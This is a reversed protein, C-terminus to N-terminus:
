SMFFWITILSVFANKWSNSHLGNLSSQQQRQLNELIEFLLKHKALFSLLLRREREKQITAEKSSNFNLIKPKTSISFPRAPQIVMSRCSAGSGNNVRWSSKVWLIPVKSWINTFGFHTQFPYMWKSFQLCVASFEFYIYTESVCKPKVLKLNFICIKLTIAM